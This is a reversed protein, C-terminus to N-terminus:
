NKVSGATLGGVVQKQMCFYLIVLPLSVMVMAAMLETWSTSYQGSFVFLGKTIPFLKNDSLFIVAKVIDNWVNIATLIALSAIAPKSLPVVIQLFYTFYGSGDIIAAEDLEKPISKLYSTFFMVSVGGIQLMSIIYGTRTNYLNMHLLMQFLPITGDPLFMGCIMLLYLGKSWSIYKRAIPFSIFLSCLLTIFTCCVVYILSNLIYSQFSAKQWASVFNQLTLTFQFGVPNKLFESPTKLSTMIAYGLPLLFVIMAIGIIISTELLRIYYSSSKKRM